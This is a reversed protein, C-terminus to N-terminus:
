IWGNTPTNSPRSRSSSRSRNLSQTLQQQQQFQHDPRSDFSQPTLPTKSIPIINEASAAAASALAQKSRRRIAIAAPSPGAPGPPRSSPLPSSISNLPPSISSSTSNSNLAIDSVPSPDEAEAKEQLPHLNYISAQLSHLSQVSCSSMGRTHQAQGHPILLHQKSNYRNKIEEVCLRHLGDLNLYAAEDRVDILTDLKSQLITPSSSYNHLQLQYPLSDSHPDRLPQRLYSLIHAYPPSPRDLFIHVSSPPSLQGSQSSYVSSISIPSPSPPPPYLSLFYKALYSPRSTLTFLTTRYTHTCTELTVILKEPNAAPLSPEAILIPTFPPPQASAAIHSPLPPVSPPDESSSSSHTLAISKPLKLSSRKSLTRQRRPTDGLLLREEDDAPLPLPPLPPSTPPSLPPARPKHKAQYTIRVGTDRLADDPTRVVTAGFGLRTFKPESIKVPKYPQPSPAPSRSLWSPMPESPRRSHTAPSVHMPQYSGTRSHQMMNTQINLDRTNMGYQSAIDCRTVMKRM